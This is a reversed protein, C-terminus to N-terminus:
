SLNVAQTEAYMYGYLLLIEFYLIPTLYLSLEDALQVYSKFSYVIESLSCPFHFFTECVYSEYKSVLKSGPFRGGPEIGGIIVISASM